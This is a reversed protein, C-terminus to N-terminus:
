VIVPTHNHLTKVRTQLQQHLAGPLRAQRVVVLDRGAVQGRLPAAVLTQRQEDFVQAALRKVGLVAVLHAAGSESVACM